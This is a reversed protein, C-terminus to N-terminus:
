TFVAQMINLVGGKFYKTFPKKFIICATLRHATTRNHPKRNPPPTVGDNHLQTEPVVIFGKFFKKNKM